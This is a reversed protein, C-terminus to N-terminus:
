QRASDLTLQVVRAAEPPMRYWSFVIQGSNQFIRIPCDVVGAEFKITAQQIVTKPEIDVTSKRNDPRFLGGIRDIQVLLGNVLHGRTPHPFVMSWGSHHLSVSTPLVPFNRYRLAVDELQGVFETLGRDLSLIANVELFAAKEAETAPVEAGQNFLIFVCEERSKEQRVMSLLVKWHRPFDMQAYLIIQPDVEALNDMAKLPSRYHVVGCGLGELRERLDLGLGGDVGVYM